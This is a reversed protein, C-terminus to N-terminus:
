EKAKRAEPIRAGRLLLWIGLSIESITAPVFVIMFLPDYWERPLLFRGYNAILFCFSAIVLLVGLSRPIYGSKFVLYGFVFLHLIFFTYAVLQGYSYPIAFLFVLTLAVYVLRLVMALLALNNNVLKLLAYLGLAVVVDCALIVSYSIIGLQSTQVVFAGLIGLLFMIVFSIGVIRAARSSSLDALLNKM